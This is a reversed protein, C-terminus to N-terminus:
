RAPYVPGASFNFKGRADAAVTQLEANVRNPAVHGDRLCAPRFELCFHGASEITAGAERGERAIVDNFRETGFDIQLNVVRAFQIRLLEGGDGRQKGECDCLLLKKGHRVFLSYHIGKLPKGLFGRKVLNGLLQMEHSGDPAPAGIDGSPPGFAVSFRFLQKVGPSADYARCRQLFMVFFNWGTPAAYEM